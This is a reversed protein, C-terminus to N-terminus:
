TYVYDEMNLYWVAAMRIICDILIIEARLAVHNM